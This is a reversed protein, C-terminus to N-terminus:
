FRPLFRFSLCSAVCRGAPTQRDTWSARDDKRARDGNSRLGFVGKRGVFLVGEVVMLNGQLFLAVFGFCLAYLWEGRAESGPVLVGGLREFLNQMRVRKVHGLGHHGDGRVRECVGHDRLLPGEVASM